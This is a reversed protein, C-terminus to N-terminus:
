LQLGLSFPSFFLLCINPLVCCNEKAKTPKSTRFSFAAVYSVSFLLSHKPWWLKTYTNIMSTHQQDMWTVPLPVNHHMLCWFFNARTSKRVASSCDHFINVTWSHSNVSCGLLSYSNLFPFDSAWNTCIRIDLHIYSVRRRPSLNCCLTTHM